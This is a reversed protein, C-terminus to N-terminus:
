ITNSSTLFHTFIPFKGDNKAFHFPHPSSQQNRNYPFSFSKILNTIDEMMGCKQLSFFMPANIQFALNNLLKVTSECSLISATFQHTLSRVCTITPVGAFENNFCAFNILIIPSNIGNLAMSFCPFLLVNIVRIGLNM